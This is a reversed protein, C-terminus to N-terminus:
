KHTMLGDDSWIVESDVRDIRIARTAILVIGIGFIGSEAIYVYTCNMHVM